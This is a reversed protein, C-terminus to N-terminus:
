STRTSSCPKWSTSTAWNPPIEGSLQNKDLELWQMNPLNGLEAPIEGSLQNDYLELVELKTLNGM